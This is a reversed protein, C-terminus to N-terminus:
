RWGGKAADIGIQAELWLAQDRYADPNLSHGAEYWAIRKPESGAASFRAADEVPILRDSRGSQFFLASPAAMGVFRIPEIPLMAQLWAERQEPAMQHFRNGADDPGNVHAVLGGDGVWLVYAKIRKEVGALLGGMAGGYSGGSYGIREADVRPHNALLDVGRRLDQILQIQEDRDKETFTITPRRAVDNPRSFPATIALVVAGAQVYQEAFHAANKRSGPMGHMLILGAYPGEGKPEYLYAPVRGGAPSAYTLDTVAYGERDTREVERVDLPAATDYDFTALPARPPDAQACAQTPVLMMLASM